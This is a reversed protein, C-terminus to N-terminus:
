GGANLREHSREDLCHFVPVLRLSSEDEDRKIRYIRYIRDLNGGHLLEREDLHIAGAVVEDHEVVAGPLELEVTGRERAKRRSSSSCASKRM